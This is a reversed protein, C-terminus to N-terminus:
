VLMCKFSYFCIWEYTYILVQFDLQRRASAPDGALSTVSYNWAREPSVVQYYLSGTHFQGIPQGSASRLSLVSQSRQRLSEELEPLTSHSCQSPVSKRMRPAMDTISSSRKPLYTDDVSHQTFRNPSYEIYGSQVPVSSSLMGHEHIEPLPKFHGLPRVSYSPKPPLSIGGGPGYIKSPSSEKNVALKKFSNNNTEKEVSSPSEVKMSRTLLVKQAKFSEPKVPSNTPSSPLTSSGAPKAIQYTQRLKEIGMTINKRNQSQLELVTTSNTRPRSQFSLDDAELEKSISKKRRRLSDLNENSLPRASSKDLTDTSQYPSALSQHSVARGKNRLLPSPMTSLIDGQSLSLDRNLSAVGRRQCVELLKDSYLSQSIKRIEAASADDDFDEVEALPPRRSATNYGSDTTRTSDLVNDDKVVNGRNTKSNTVTSETNNLTNNSTTLVSSDFNGSLRKDFNGSLRKDFNGSLRNDNNGSTVSPNVGKIECSRRNMTERILEAQRGLSNRVNTSQLSGSLSKDGTNESVSAPINSKVATTPKKNKNTESLSSARPRLPSRSAKRARSALGNFSWSRGRAEPFGESDKHSSSKNGM